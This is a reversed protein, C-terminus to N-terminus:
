PLLAVALQEEVLRLHIQLDTTAYRVDPEFGAQRCASAAWQGAPTHAPEMVFPGGAVEYLSREPWDSPTVLLLDDTLLDHREADRLHPAPRGPYEEAMVLDHLRRRPPHRRRTRRDLWPVKQGKCRRWSVQAHQVLLEAPATLRVRRGAPELLRVGTERELTSLQQSVALSQVLPAQAVATITRRRAPGPSDSDRLMTRM